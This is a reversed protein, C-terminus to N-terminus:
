VVIVLEVTDILLLEVVLTVQVMEFAWGIKHPVEVYV